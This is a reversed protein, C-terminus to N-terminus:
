YRQPITGDWEFCSAETLGIQTRMAPAEKQFLAIGGIQDSYYIIAFMQPGFHWYLDRQRQCTKRRRLCDLLYRATVLHLVRVAQGEGVEISSVLASASIALTRVMSSARRMALLM